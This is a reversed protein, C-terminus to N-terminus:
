SEDSKKLWSMMSRLERGVREIRHDKEAALMTKYQPSEAQSDGVFERAFDGSRIEALLKKM